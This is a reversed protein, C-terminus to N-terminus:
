HLRHSLRRRACRNGRIHLRTVVCRLATTVRGYEPGLYAAHRSKKFARGFAGPIIVDRALCKKCCRSRCHRIVQRYEGFTILKIRPWQTYLPLCPVVLITYRHMPALQPGDEVCPLEECTQGDEFDPRGVPATGNLLGEGTKCWSGRARRNGKAMTKGHENKM